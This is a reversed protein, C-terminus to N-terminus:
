ESKTPKKGKRGKEEVTEVDAKCAENVVTMVEKAIRNKESPLLIAIIDSLEEETLPENGEYKENNMKSFFENKHKAAILMTSLMFAFHEEFVVGLKDMGGAREVIMGQAEVTYEIPYEKGLITINKM